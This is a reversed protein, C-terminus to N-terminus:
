RQMDAMPPVFFSFSRLQQFMFKNEPVTLMFLVDLIPKVSEKTDGMCLIHHPCDNHKINLALQMSSANVLNVCIGLVDDKYTRIFHIDASLRLVRVLIYENGYVCVELSTKLNWIEQVLIVVHLIPTKRLTQLV